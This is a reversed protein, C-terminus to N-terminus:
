EVLVARRLFSDAALYFAFKLLLITVTSSDNNTSRKVARLIKGTPSTPFFSLVGWM